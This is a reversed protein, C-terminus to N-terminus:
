LDKACRFGTHSAPSDEELSHRAAPRYRMCYSIHCLFSGGKTVHNAAGQGKGGSTRNIWTEPGKPDCAECKSRYDPDYFDSCIEWVNGAMDYLGYGNPDYSKVPASGIFGDEGTDKTPFDGHFTNAMWTDGPKLEDGWVYTKGILGGRAAFEWEAETTLRKGAWKAYASADEFNVCVVPHSGKQTIESGEGLPHQWNATPDWRWWSLASNPDELSGTFEKPPSFVISGQNFPPKPLFALAEAPFDEIKAEREAYSVYGTAKIFAAFQDNTVESEDIWFGTVQIKRMPSEEPFRKTGYQTEFEGASGMTTEGSPIQLMGDKKDFKSEAPSEPKQCSSFLALFALCLIAQSVNV